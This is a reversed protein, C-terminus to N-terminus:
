PTEKPPQPDRTCLPNHKPCSLLDVCERCLSPYLFHPPNLLGISPVGPFPRHPDFPGTFSLQLFRRKTLKTPNPKM